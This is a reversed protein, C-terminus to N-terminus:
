DNKKSLYDIFKVTTKVQKDESKISTIKEVIDNREDQSLKMFVIFVGADKFTEVIEKQTIQEKLNLIDNRM